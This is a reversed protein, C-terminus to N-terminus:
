MRWLISIVHRMVEASLLAYDLAPLSSYALLSNHVGNLCVEDRGSAAFFPWTCWTLIPLKKLRPWEPIHPRLQLRELSSSQICEVLTINLAKVIHPSFFPLLQHRRPSLKISFIIDLSPTACTTPKTRRLVYLPSYSSLFCYCHRLGRADKFADIYWQSTYERNEHLCGIHGNYIANSDRWWLIELRM